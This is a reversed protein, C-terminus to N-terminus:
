LVPLYLTSKIRGATVEAIFNHLAPTIICHTVTTHAGCFGWVLVATALLHWQVKTLMRM